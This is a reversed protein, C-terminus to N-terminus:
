NYGEKKFGQFMEARSWGTHSSKLRYLCKHAFLKETVNHDKGTHGEGLEEGGKM